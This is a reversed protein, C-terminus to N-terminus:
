QCGTDLVLISNKLFYHQQTERFQDDVQHDLFARIQAYKYKFEDM